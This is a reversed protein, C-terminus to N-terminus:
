GGSFTSLSSGLIGFVLYGVCCLLGVGGWCVAIIACIKNAGDPKPNQMLAVVGMIGGIPSCLAAAILAWVGLGIGSSPAPRYPQQYPQQYTPPYPQSYPNQPPLYMPPANAPRQPYPPTDDVVIDEAEWVSAPGTAPEPPVGLAKRDYEARLDPDLLVDRAINLLKTRDEDGTLMDPHAERMVRRYARQIDEATAEPSIELLAYPNEGKLDSIRRTM